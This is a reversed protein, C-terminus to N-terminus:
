ERRDGWHSRGQRGTRLPSRESGEPRGSRRPTLNVVGGDVARRHTMPRAEHSQLQESAEEMEVEQTENPRPTRRASEAAIIKREIYDNFNLRMFFQRLSTTKSQEQLRNSQLLSYVARVSENFGRVLKDIQMSKAADVADSGDDNKIIACVDRSTSFIPTLYQSFIKTQMFSQLLLNKLYKEHNKSAQMFDQTDDMEQLLMSYNAEIVDVQIYIQLNTVFHFLHQHLQWLQKRSSSVTYHKKHWDKRRSSIHLWAEELGMQVRKLRLLLMFMANYKDLMELTIISFLPWGVRYQLHLSDWSADYGPIEAYKSKGISIKMPEKSWKISVLPFFKDHQVTSRSASQDFAATIDAQVTADRPPLQMLNKAEVLFNHFFEGRALLFYDKLAQLHKRLEAKVVVLHWLRQAVKSRIGEITRDFAVRQFVPQEQLKRLSDAYELTNKYPLLDQGEFTGQPQRLMQVAKGIFKVQEATRVSIYPPLRSMEVKFTKIWHSDENVGTPEDFETSKETIFFEKDRDVLHGHIMWGSLQKYLVQHCHWLLRLICSQLTPLGTRASNFLHTLLEAGVLGEQDVKHVLRHVQPLLTQFDILFNKVAPIVPTAQTRLHQQVQIIAAQYVDLLESVGAGLARRYTSVKNGLHGSEVFADLARYHFGLELLQELQFKDPKSVWTITEQALRFTSNEPNLRGDNRANDDVFVDGTIGLLALILEELLNAYSITPLPAPEDM